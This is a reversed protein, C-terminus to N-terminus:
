CTVAFTYEPRNIHMPKATSMKYIINERETRCILIIIIINYAVRYSLFINKVIKRNMM